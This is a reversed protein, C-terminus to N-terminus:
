LKWRRHLWLWQEPHARIMKELFTNMRMTNERIAEDRSIGAALDLPEFIELRHRFPAMRYSVVPVVPARSLLAIAAPGGATFCPQGFFRGHVGTSNWAQDPLIGLFGGDKVFRVADKMVFQKEFTKLGVRTRYQRTLEAADPDDPNRVLAAVPYGAQAVWAALLEWNGLHGTLLICGRGSSLFRDLVSIGHVSPFWDLVQRPNGVLAFYEAVMWALHEYCKKVTERRWSESSEPYAVKLNELAVKMRPRLCKLGGSLIGALFAARWGPRVLRRIRDFLEAKGKM